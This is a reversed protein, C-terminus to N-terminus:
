DLLEKRLLDHIKTVIRAAASQLGSETSIIQDVEGQGIPLRDGEFDSTYSVEIIAKLKQGQRLIEGVVHMRPPYPVGGPESLNPRPGDGEGLDGAPPKDHTTFVDRLQDQRARLQEIIQQALYTRNSDSLVSPNAKFRYVLFKFEYSYHVNQRLSAIVSEPVHNNRLTQRVAKTPLFGVKRRQVVDRIYADAVADPHNTWYRKLANTNLPVYDQWTEVPFELVTIASTCVFIILLVQKLLTNQIQRM